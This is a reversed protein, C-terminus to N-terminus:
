PIAFPSSGNNDQLVVQENNINIKYNNLFNLTLTDLKSHNLLNKKQLDDLISLYKKDIYHKIPIPRLTEDTVEKGTLESYEDIQDIATLLALWKSLSDPSLNYYYNLASKKDVIDINMDNNDMNMDNNDM